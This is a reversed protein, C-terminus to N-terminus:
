PVASPPRPTTWLHLIKGTPTALPARREVTLLGADRWLLGMVRKVGSGAGLASLFAEAVAHSDLPGLAPHVLLQLQPRGDEGEEEVLQYDTPAGGFRAPLLEELVRIVDTDLFTVGGSTLKEYSRVTHLHTAWGLRELLCGCQRQVVEAEDGMSVNLLIFPATSRLSSIFLAGRPVAGTGAEPRLRILAHLDDLLHLDDAVEPTLCGYGIPGTEISGYRALPEAGVGRIVALRAATIPESMVTIRAGHLDVGADRAAQCLRVASSAMTALYPTRGSRLVATMWRAIPLPDDLPVYHPRPLSVGALRGGWRLAHTSWRYRAHLGRAEPDVQTFWRVPPAGFSSLKLLRFVAGGGPVEWDAKLWQSGDHADLFLFTNVVCDRVFGLDVLTPTGVGRSGSSRLPLHFTSLRNRLQSPDVPITLSGRIVPRRGKYEEVTLYVGERVLRRLAGEVGEQGVLRELDGYECGAHRLLHRYPGGAHEYIARKVLALFDAERRELRRRLTARAEELSLPHRLFSPLRRLFRAGIRVDQVLSM